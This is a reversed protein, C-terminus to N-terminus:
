GTVQEIMRVQRQGGPFKLEVTNPWRSRLDGSPSVIRTAVPPILNWKFSTKQILMWVQGTTFLNLPQADVKWGFLKRASGAEPTSRGLILVLFLFQV